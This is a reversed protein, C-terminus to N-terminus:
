QPGAVFQRRVKNLYVSQRAPDSSHYAAIAQGWSKKDEFLRKLFRVGYDANAKPDFADDLRPFAHPHHKLNIQMCGVDVSTIGANRLQRLAQVGDGVSHAKAPWGAINMALPQNSSEVKAITLAVSVPVGHRRAAEAIEDTCVNAARAPNQLAAVCCALMAATLAPKM